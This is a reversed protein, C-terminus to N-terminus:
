RPGVARELMVEDEGFHAPAPTSTHEFRALGVVVAAASAVIIAVWLFFLPTETLVFQPIRREPVAIVGVLAGLLGLYSGVMFSRHSAIRARRAQVVGVTITALTFVSLGHLIGFGGTITLIGFSTGLTIFMAAVWIRGLIRHARGGKRRLLQVAGFVVSYSASLAHVTILFGWDSM